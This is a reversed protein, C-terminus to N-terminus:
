TVRPEVGAFGTDIWVCAGHRVHILVQESFPGEDAFPDILEIGELLCEAIAERLIADEAVVQQFAGIGAGTEQAVYLEVFFIRGAVVCVHGPTIAPDASIPLNRAPGEGAHRPRVSAGAVIRQGGQRTPFNKVVQSAAEDGGRQCGQKDDPHASSEGTQSQVRAV